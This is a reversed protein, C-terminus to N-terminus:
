FTSVIQEQIRYQRPTFVNLPVFFNPYQGTNRLENQIFFLNQLQVGKGLGILRCIYEDLRIHSIIDINHASGVSFEIKFFEEDRKGVAVAEAKDVQHSLVLDAHAEEDFDQLHRLRPDGPM